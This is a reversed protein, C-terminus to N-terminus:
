CVTNAIRKQTKKVEQSNRMLRGCDWNGEKAAIDAPACRSASAFGGGVHERDEFPQEVPQVIFPLEIVYTSYSLLTKNLNKKFRNRNFM